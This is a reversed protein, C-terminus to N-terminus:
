ENVTEFFTFPHSPRKKSLTRQQDFSFFRSSNRRSNKGWNKDFVFNIEQKDKKFFNKESKEDEPGTTKKKKVRHKQYGTTTSALHTFSSSKNPNGFNQFIQKIKHQRITEFRMLYDALYDLLERNEDLLFFAKNFCTLILTHYIYDRDLKYLDNWTLDFDLKNKIQCNNVTLTKGFPKNKNKSINNKETLIMSKTETEINGFNTEKRLLTRLSAQADKGEGIKSPLGLSSPGFNKNFESITKQTIKLSKFTPLLYSNKRHLPHFSIKPLLFNKLNQTNHYYEDPKVWEENRESEEPDPLYIRYWDDYFMNLNGMQKIIQNQWWPRISWEQFNYRSHKDRSERVHNESINSASIRNEVDQTLQQFLDFIEIESIEFQNQNTVIQNERRIAIKNSYFHWKEVLSHALNSAVSLDEIGLTSHWLNTKNYQSFKRVQQNKQKNNTIDPINSSSLNSFIRKNLLTQKFSTVNRVYQKRFIKKM